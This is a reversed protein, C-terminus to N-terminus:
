HANAHTYAGLMKIIYKGMMDVEINIRSGVRYHQAITVAQTHPILTVTFWTPTAEIVTISMGDLGIYGKDVVYNALNEPLSIKILYAQSQDYEIELIEGTTDVHGQVYHGGIRKQPTLSRELNVGSDITLEGLNTKRLTEPVLTVSFHNDAFQTVTLCVGNVAISDGIIVDDFAIAPQITFHTCGDRHTINTIMGLTEVIGGFM